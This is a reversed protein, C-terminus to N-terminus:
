AALEGRESHAALSLCFLAGGGPNDEVWLRGGHAAAISRCIALGLGLGSPKTTVFPEFVRSKLAQPVGPGRDAVYIRVAGDPGTDAGLSLSRLGADIDQMAECANLILNLLVQQLHVRDGDVRPLRPATRTDFRVRQELLTGNALRLTEAFLEDVSLAERELPANQLLGRLRQIVQSARRDDLVIDELIAQLEARDIRPRHLLRQAAQANSMIATLPQKLEHALPGSLDGLANLRMLHALMNRQEALKLEMEQKETVDIVAALDSDRDDAPPHSQAILRKWRTGGDEDVIRFQIDIPAEDISGDALQRRVAASDDPHLRGLLADLAAGREGGGYATEWFGIGASAAASDLMRRCAEISRRERRLRLAWRALLPAAILSCLLGALSFLQLALERDEPNGVLDAQASAAPALALALGALISFSLRIGRLSPAGRAICTWPHKGSYRM